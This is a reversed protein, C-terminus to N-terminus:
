ELCDSSIIFDGTVSLVMKGSVVIPNSQTAQACGDILELTGNNEVWSSAPGLDNPEFSNPGKEGEDNGVVVTDYLRKDESDAKGDEDSDTSSAIGWKNSLYFSIAKQQDENVPENGPTSLAIVEQISDTPRITLTNNSSVEFKGETDRKVIFWASANQNNIFQAIGTGSISENTPDYNNDSGVNVTVSNTLRNALSILKNSDYEDYFVNKSSTDIWDTLNQTVYQLPNRGQMDETVSLPKSKVKIVFPIRQIINNSNDKGFIHGIVKGSNASPNLTYTLNNNMAPVVLFPSTNDLNTVTYTLDSRVNDLAISRNNSSDLWHYRYYPKQTGNNPDSGVAVEAGDSVGDGDSDANNLDTGLRIEDGNSIGDGDRDGNPDLCTNASPAACYVSEVTNPIGDLDSDLYVTITFTEKTTGGLNDDVIVDITAVRTADLNTTPTYNLTAVASGSVWELAPSVAFLNIGTKVNVSVRTIWQSGEVADIGTLFNGVTQSGGGENVTLNTTSM